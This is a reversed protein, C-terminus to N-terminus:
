VKHGAKAMEARIVTISEHADSIFELWYVSPCSEYIMRMQDMILSVNEAKMVKSKLAREAWCGLDICADRTEAVYKQHTEIDMDKIDHMDIITEM